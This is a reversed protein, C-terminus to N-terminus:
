VSGIMGMHLEKPAEYGNPGTDETASWIHHDPTDSMTKMLADLEGGCKAAVHQNLQSLM